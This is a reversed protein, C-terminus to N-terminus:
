VILRNSVRYQRANFALYGVYEIGFAIVEWVGFGGIGCVLTRDRRLREFSLPASVLM